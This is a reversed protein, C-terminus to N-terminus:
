VIEWFEDVAKVSFVCVLVAIIVVINKVKM